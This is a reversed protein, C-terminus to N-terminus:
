LKYLRSYEMYHLSDSNQPDGNSATFDVAAMFNLEFGSSIYDLFTYLEMEEYRDVFISRKM